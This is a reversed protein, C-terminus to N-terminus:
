YALTQVVEGYVVVVVLGPRRQERAEPLELGRERREEGGIRFRGVLDLTRRQRGREHLINCNGRVWEQRGM